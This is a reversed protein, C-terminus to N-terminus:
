MDFYYALSALSGRLKFFLAVNLQSTIWANMGVFRPTFRAHLRTNHGTQGRM